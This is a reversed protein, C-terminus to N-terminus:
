QSKVIGRKVLQERVSSVTKDSARARAAQEKAALEQDVKSRTVFRAPSAPANPKIVNSKTLNYKILHSSDDILRQQRMYSDDNKPLDGFDDPIKVNDIIFKPCNKLIEEIATHIKSNKYNQHKISNRLYVWGERYGVRSEMNKFMGTLKKQEIKSEFSITRLSIEYIGALNTHANTLLYMFLLTEEISLEDMVWPDSWFDTNIYRNRSM